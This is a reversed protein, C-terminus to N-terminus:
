ESQKEVAECGAAIKAALAADIPMNELPYYKALVEEVAKDLGPYKGPLDTGGAALRLASSYVERWVATTAILKGSDRRILDALAAYVSRIRARDTPSASKLAVAVPGPEVAPRQPVFQMAAFAVALAVIIHKVPATGALAHHM